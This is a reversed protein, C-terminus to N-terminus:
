GAAEGEDRLKASLASPLAGLQMKRPLKYAYDRPQSWADNRRAEVASQSDIGHPGPRHGKAELAQGVRGSRAADQEPTENRRIGGPLAPGSTGAAGRQGARRFGRGALDVRGSRRNIVFDIVGVSPMAIDRGPGGEVEPRHRIQREAGFRAREKVLIVNDEVDVEVIELNRVTVRDTGMHGGMRMGPFVRSPFSSAGISGPARHFMSGHTADSGRFHHRKVVGAFGRGQQHRSSTWKENPKVRRRARPRGAEFEGNSGDGLRFERMFRVGEAAPSKQPTGDGAQQYAVEQRIGHVGVPRRRVRRHGADQAAGGRVSRGEAGDGAGSARGAPVGADDRNKQRFNRPENKVGHGAEQSPSNAAEPSLTRRM